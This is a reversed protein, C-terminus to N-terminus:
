FDILDRVQVGLADAIRCLIIVSVNAKGREIRSVYAKGESSGIQWALDDQTWRKGKRYMRINLGLARLRENRCGEDASHPNGDDM